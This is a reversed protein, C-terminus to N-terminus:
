PEQPSRRRQALDWVVLSLLVFIWLQLLGYRRLEPGPDIGSLERDLAGPRSLTIAHVALPAYNLGAGTMWWGVVRGNVSSAALLIVVGVGVMVLVGLVFETLVIRKRRTTGYLGYMDIAALRRVSM